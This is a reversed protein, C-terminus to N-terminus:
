HDKGTTRERETVRQAECRERRVVCLICRRAGERASEDEFVSGSKHAKQRM